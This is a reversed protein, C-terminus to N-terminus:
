AAKVEPEPPGPLVEVNARFIQSMNWDRCYFYDTTTDLLEFRISRTRQNLSGVRMYQAKRTGDYADVWARVYDGTVFVQMLDFHILVDKSMPKGDRWCSDADDLLFKHTFYESARLEDEIGQLQQELKPFGPDAPGLKKLLSQNRHWRQFTQYAVVRKKAQYAKLALEQNAEWRARAAEPDPSLLIQLEGPDIGGRTDAELNLYDDGKGRWLEGIWDGKRSLADHRIADFSGKAFYTFLGVHDRQNGQRLGRGNRQIIDPTTWPLSAHHIGATDAQLNVGQGIIGDNGIAVVYEGSNFGNALRQRDSSKPATVGNIICIKEPEVGLLVLCAKIQAHAAVFKDSTFIIQGGAGAALQDAVTECVQRMKPSIYDAPYSLPHILQPCFAVVEMEHMISFVHPTEGEETLQRTARVRLHEYDLRQAEDLESLLITNSSAPLVLGVEAASRLDTYKFLIDRLNNLNRFGVLAQVDEYTGATNQITRHEVRGYQDIFHEINHIGRATWEEPALHSILAYVELPSNKTPTATLLFVGRNGNRARIFAAKANFDHARKAGDGIPLYRIRGHQKSGTLNKYMHAEDSTLCDIGLDDFFTQESVNLFQRLAARTAHQERLQARQYDTLKRGYIQNWFDADAFEELVEPSLPVMQFASDTILILDWDNQAAQKLAIERQAATMTASTGDERFVEGIYLVKVDRTASDIEAKWNALVSKPVVIGPKHALGLAKLQLNLAIAALTKGLGVDLAICGRGLDLMKRLTQFQYGHLARGEPMEFGPIPMPESGYHPAVYNNFRHNYQAELAPAHESALAWERFAAELEEIDHQRRLK